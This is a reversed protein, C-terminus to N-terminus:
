AKNDRKALYSALGGPRSYAFVNEIGADRALVIVAEILRQSVPADDHIRVDGKPEPYQLLMNYGLSSKDEPRGNPILGVFHAGESLGAKPKQHFKFVADQPVYALVEKESPRRCTGIGIGDAMKSVEPVPRPRYDASCISICVINKGQPALVKPTLLEDYTIGLLEKGSLDTRVLAIQGAIHEASPRHTPMPVQRRDAALIIVQKPINKEYATKEAMLPEWCHNYLEYSEKVWRSYRHLVTFRYEPTKFLGYISEFSEYPLQQKLITRQVKGTSTTPLEAVTMSTIYKPTEYASLYPTGCLLALKLRRKAADTDVGEKWSIVAGCEEGYREDAVSVVHVQAIDSSIKKLSNEVAIPSINIGGKIIIERKRGKLYFYPRGEEIRFYGIDGTLFYGRAETPLDCFAPEGGVYGEMLAEGKVIIEGEEGEGQFKGNEDAIRVDAWSMPAGISNEEVLREYLEESLGMPVGTVRLATETQGYGQYLSIGFKKRFEQVTSAIVPASGIQIRSLVVNKRVAAYEEERNLQDFLISQVISTITASTAAIQQWFHSNSYAPPIAISGGALLMALCFTTSNIHHLPLNVLFRDTETIRLWEGIAEANVILNKLSLKAGKPHATTGSTFLVLAQHSLGTEWVVETDQKKPFDSFEKINVGSLHSKDADKLLGKQAVLVKAGNLKIKYAHQEGTDRKTDLPITIIGTSWAAWSIILLEASNKFALAARDGKRLGLESLYSAASEVEKALEGFNIERLIKGTEDCSVLAARSPHMQALHAIHEHLSKIRKEHM